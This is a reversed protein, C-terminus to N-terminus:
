FNLAKSESNMFARSQGTESQLGQVINVKPRVELGDATNNRIYPSVADVCVVRVVM